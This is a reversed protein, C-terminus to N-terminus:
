YETCLFTEDHDELHFWHEEPEGAINRHLCYKFREKEDDMCEVSLKFTNTTNADSLPSVSVKWRKNGLDDSEVLTCGVETVKAFTPTFGVVQCFQVSYSTKNVFVQHLLVKQIQPTIPKVKPM